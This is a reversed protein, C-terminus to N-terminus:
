NLNEKKENIVEIFIEILMKRNENISNQNYMGNLKSILKDYIEIKKDNDLHEIKTLRPELKQLLLTKMKDRKEDISTNQKMSEIAKEKEEQLIKKAEDISTNGNRVNEIIEKKRQEFNNKITNIDNEAYSYNYLLLFLITSVILKIIKKM